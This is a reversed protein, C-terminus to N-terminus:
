GNEVEPKLFMVNNAAQKWEPVENMDQYVIMHKDIMHANMPDMLVVGYRDFDVCSIIKPITFANPLPKVEVLYPLPLEAIKVLFDPSWKGLDMPEYEFYHGRLEFYSAVRAELRSRYLRGKYLTPKAPIEKYIFEKHNM